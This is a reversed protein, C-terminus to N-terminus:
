ITPELPPENDAVKAKEDAAATTALRGIYISTYDFYKELYLRQNGTSARMDQGTSIITPMSPQLVQRNQCFIKMAYFCNQTSSVEHHLGNLVIELDALLWIVQWSLITGDKIQGVVSNVLAMIWGYGTGAFQVRQVVLANFCHVNANM